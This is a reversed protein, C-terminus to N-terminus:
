KGWGGFIWGIESIGLEKQADDGIYPELNDTTCCSQRFDAYHIVHGLEHVLTIACCLTATLQRASGKSAALIANAFATTIKIVLPRTKKGLAQYKRDKSPFTEPHDDGPVGMRTVGFQGKDEYMLSDELWVTNEAIDLLSSKAKDMDEQTPNEKPSVFDYSEVYGNKDLDGIDDSFPM